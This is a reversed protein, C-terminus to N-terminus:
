NRYLCRELFGSGKLDGIWCFFQLLRDSCRLALLASIIAHLNTVHRYMKLFISCMYTLTCAFTATAFLTLFLKVSICNHFWLIALSNGSRIWFVLFDFLLPIRKKWIESLRETELWWKLFSKIAKNFVICVHARTM